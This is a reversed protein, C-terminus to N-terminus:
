KSVLEALAAVGLLGVFIIPVMFWWFQGWFAAGFLLVRDFSTLVAGQEAWHAAASIMVAKFIFMGVTLLVALVIATRYRM